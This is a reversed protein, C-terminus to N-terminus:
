KDRINPMVEEKKSTRPHSYLNTRSIYKTQSIYLCAFCCFHLYPCQALLSLPTRRKMASRGVSNEHHMVVHNRPFSWCPISALTLFLHCQNAPHRIPQIAFTFSWRVGILIFVCLSSLFLLEKSLLVNVLYLMGPSAM